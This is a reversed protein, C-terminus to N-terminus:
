FPINEDPEEGTAAVPKPITDTNPKWTDIKATHTNGRDDPERMLWTNLSIYKKGNKAVDIERDAYEIMDTLCLNYRTGFKGNKGKGIYITEKM